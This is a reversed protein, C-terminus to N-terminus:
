MSSVTFNSFFGGKWAIHEYIQARFLSQPLQFYGGSNWSFFWFFVQLVLIDHLINLYERTFHSQPLQFDGGLNWLFFILLFSILSPRWAIYEFIRARFLSQPLRFDGEPNWSFFWFFVQLFLVDHLINLYSRAFYVRLCGFTVEPIERFFSNYM